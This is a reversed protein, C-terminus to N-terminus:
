SSDMAKLRVLISELKSKAQQNKQLLQRREAQWSSANAKLLQNERKMETCFDILDDVKANLSEFGDDSM